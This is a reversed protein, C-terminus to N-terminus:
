FAMSISLSCSHTILSAWLGNKLTYSGSGNSLIVSKVTVSEDKHEIVAYRSLDLTDAGPPRGWWRGSVDRGYGGEPLRLFGYKDHYRRVGKFVIM